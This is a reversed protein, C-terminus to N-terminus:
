RVVSSELDRKVAVALRRGDCSGAYREATERPVKNKNRRLLVELDECSQGRTDWLIPDLEKVRGISTTLDDLGETVRGEAISTGARQVVGTLVDACHLIDLGHSRSAPTWGLRSWVDPLLEVCIRYCRGFHEAHATPTTPRIPKM